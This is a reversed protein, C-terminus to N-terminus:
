LKLPDAGTGATVADEETAERRKAFVVLALALGGGGFAIEWAAALREAGRKRCLARESEIVAQQGPPHQLRSPRYAPPELADLASGCSGPGGVVVAWEADRARRTPTSIERSVMWGSLLLSGALVTRALVMPDRSFVEVGPRGDLRDRVAFFLFILTLPPAFVWFGWSRSRGRLSADRAALCGISVVVVLKLGLQVADSAVM